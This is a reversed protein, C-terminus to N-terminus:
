KIFICYSPLECLNSPCPWLHLAFTFVPHSATAPVTCIRCVGEEWGANKANSVVNFHLTCRLSTTCGSQLGHMTCFSPVKSFPWPTMAFSPQTRDQPLICSSANWGVRFKQMCLKYVVENKIEWNESCVASSICFHSLFHLQDCSNWLSFTSVLHFQLM